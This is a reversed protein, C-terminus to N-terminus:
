INYLVRILKPLADLEIIDFWEDVKKLGVTWTKKSRLNTIDINEGVQSQVQFLTGKPTDKHHKKMKLITGDSITM